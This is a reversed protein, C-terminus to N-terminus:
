SYISLSWLDDVLFFTLPFLLYSHSSAPTEWYILVSAIINIGLCLKCLDRFYIWGSTLGTSRRLLVRLLSIPHNRKIRILPHHLQHIIYITFKGFPLNRLIVFDFDPSSLNSVPTFVYHDSFFSYHRFFRKVNSLLNSFLLQVSTHRSMNWTLSLLLRQYSIISITAQHTKCNARAIQFTISSSLCNSQTSTSWIDNSGSWRWSCSPTVSKDVNMLYHHLHM